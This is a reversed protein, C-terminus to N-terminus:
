TCGKAWYALAHPLGRTSFYAKRERQTNLPQYSVKVFSKANLLKASISPTYPMEFSFHRDTGELKIAMSPMSSLQIVPSRKLPVSSSIKLYITDGSLRGTTSMHIDARNAYIRCSDKYFEWIGFNQKELPTYATQKPSTNTNACGVLAISIVSIAFLKKFM